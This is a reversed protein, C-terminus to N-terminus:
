PYNLYKSFNIVNGSLVPLYFFSIYLMTNNNKKLSTCTAEYIVAINGKEIKMVRVHM